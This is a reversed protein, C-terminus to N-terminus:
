LWAKDMNSYCHDADAQTILGDPDVCDFVISEVDVEVDERDSDSRESSMTSGQSNNRMRETGRQLQELRVRLERQEWRLRGKMQEAREDQDQLKKIHLQARRLLNLTTSRVADSSLPVQEKLQDLCHKLQARRNKELENHVSRNGGASIKRSKQKSKRDSDGPSLPLVSAYGHEAERERRELFEAARLLVQINCMHDEM